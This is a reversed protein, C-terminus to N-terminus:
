LRTGLSPVKLRQVSGDTGSTFFADKTAVADTVGWSSNTVNIAVNSAADGLFNTAADGLFSPKVHVKSLFAVERFIPLSWIKVDGSASGSLVCDGSPHLVITKIPTEHANSITHLVRRQRMDFINLAGGAGGTILLQHTSSFAVSTAGAPHSTTAAVLAKSTPLLTDWVCVNRKESSLGVTAISSSSNLFALGKAGKDHCMMERYYPSRDLESLKWLFLHGTTDVAGLHQGLSDFELAKVSRWGSLMSPSSPYPIDKTQFSCIASLRDYSWLHVRGKHNGSVFLPLFPHSAVATPKFSSDSPSSLLHAPNRLPSSPGNSRNALSFFSTQPPAYMGKFQFRFGDAYDACSARFIGKSSCLSVEADEGAAHNFCMAKINTESRYVCQVHVAAATPTSAAMRRTLQDTLNTARSFTPANEAVTSLLLKQSRTLATKRSVPEPLHGWRVEADIKESCCEFQANLRLLLENKDTFLEVLLLWPCRECECKLLQRRNLRQPSGPIDPLFGRPSGPPGGRSPSPLGRPSGPSTTSSEPRPSSPPQSISPPSYFFGALDCLLHKLAFGALRDSYNRWTEVLKKSLEMTSAVGEGTVKLLHAPMAGAAMTLVLGWYSCYSFPTPLDRSSMPHHLRSTKVAATFEDLEVELLCVARYLVPIDQQLSSAGLVKSMTTPRRLSTCSVCIDGGAIDNLAEESNSSLGTKHLFILGLVRYLCCPNKLYRCCVCIASHVAAVAVRVFERNPLTARQKAPKLYFYQLWLLLRTAMALLDSCTQDVKRTHMYDTAASMLDGSSIMAVGEAIVEVFRPLPSTFPFKSAPVESYSWGSVLFDLAALRGSHVLSEVVASRVRHELHDKSTEPVGSLAYEGGRRVICQIEENLREELDFRPSSASDAPTTMAERMSKLFTAYLFDVETGVAAFLIRQRCGLFAAVDSSTARERRFDQVFAAIDRQHILAPIGLGADQMRLMASTNLRIMKEKLALKMPVIKKRLFRLLDCAGLLSKGFSSWYMSSSNVGSGEDCDFMSRMEIAPPTMLIDIAISTEGLFYKVLFCMYVDGCKWAKTWVLTNLFDVCINKAKLGTFSAQAFHATGSSSSLDDQGGLDWKESIRAILFSLVLTQDAQEAVSVAETLKGGLLFFAASLEYRQKTKLVYANKIAANKWRLDSFNNSLLESIRSENAMKFLSALLRTKGLLVYFVAVAFPDRNAAYEAQAVKETFQTLKSSSKLWFPLRQSRMDKWNMTTDPFCEQLLETQFDSLAGWAVQESCIGGVSRCSSPVTTENANQQISTGPENAASQIAVSQAPPGVPWLLSAHFRLAAEDKERSSDREWSLTKKIGSIIALFIESESPTMFTLSGKHENFFSSFVDTELKSKSTAAREATTSDVSSAPPAFLMEARSVGSASSGYRRSAGFDMAFLDSARAPAVSVTAGGSGHSGKGRLYIDSREDNDETSAPDGLLQFLSILPLTRLITNDAMRLYCTEEHEVIKMKVHELIRELTKFSGRALLYILTIPHHAPFAKSPPLSGLIQGRSVFPLQLPSSGVGDIDRLNLHALSSGIRLLGYPYSSLSSINEPRVSFRSSSWAISWKSTPLSCDFKLMGITTTSLFLLECDREPTVPPTWELSVVKGFQKHSVEVVGEVSSVMTPLFCIQDDAERDGGFLIATRGCSSLSFHKFILREETIHFEMHSRQAQKTMRVLAGVDVKHVPKVELLDALDTFTWLILQLDADFSALAVEFTNLLPVSAVSLVRVEPLNVTTKRFLQVSSSLSESIALDFSFVWITLKTGGKHVGVVMSYDKSINNTVPKSFFSSSNSWEIKATEPIVVAILDDLEEFDDCGDMYCASLTLADHEVLGLSSKRQSKSAESSSDEIAKPVQHKPAVMAVHLKGGIFLYLAGREEYLTTHSVPGVANEINSRYAVELRRLSASTQFVDLSGSLTTTAIKMHSGSMMSNCVTCVECSQISYSVPGRHAGVISSEVHLKLRACQLYSEVTTQQFLIEVFFDIRGSEQDQYDSSSVCYVHAHALQERLDSYILLLSLKPSVGTFPVSEARFICFDGNSLVGYVLNVMFTKELAVNGCIFTEGMHTDAVTGSRDGLLKANMQAISDRRQSVLENRRAERLSGYGYHFLCLADMVTQESLLSENISSVAKPAERAWYHNVLGFERIRNELSKEDDFVSRCMNETSFQKWLVFSRLPAINERWISINGARDLTFLMECAGTTTAVTSRANYVNVDKSWTMSVLARTHALFLSMPAGEHPSLEGLNWVKVIRDHTGATAVFRGSPAVDFHCIPVVPLPTEVDLGGGGSLTVTRQLYVQVSDDVLKWISLKEGAGLLFLDDGSEVWELHNLLRDDCKWRVSEAWRPLHLNLHAKVYDSRPILDSGAISSGTGTHDDQTSARSAEAVIAARSSTASAPMLLVGRGEDICLALAGRAAKKSPNFRVCRIADHANWVQWLEFRSARAAQEQVNLAPAPPAEVLVVLQAESSYVLYRSSEFVAQCVRLDAQVGPSPACVAAISEELRFVM